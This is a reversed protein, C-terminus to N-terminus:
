TSGQGEMCLVLTSHLGGVVKLWRQPVGKAADVHVEWQLVQSQGVGRSKQRWIYSKKSGVGSQPSKLDEEEEEVLVETLGQQACVM